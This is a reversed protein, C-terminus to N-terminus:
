KNEKINEEIIKKFNYAETLSDRLYIMSEDLPASPNVKVVDVIIENSIPIIRMDVIWRYSGGSIDKVLTYIPQKSAQGLSKYLVYQGEDSVEILKGLEEDYDAYDVLESM